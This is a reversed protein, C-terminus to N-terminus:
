SVVQIIHIKFFGNTKLPNQITSKLERSSINMQYTSEIKIRYIYFNNISDYGILSAILHYHLPPMYIHPCFLYILDLNTDWV